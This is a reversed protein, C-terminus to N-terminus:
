SEVETLGCETCKLAKMLVPEKGCKLDREVKFWGREVPKPVLVKGTKMEGSCRPYPCKETPRKM